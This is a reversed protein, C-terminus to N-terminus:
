AAPRLARHLTHLAEVVGPALLYDRQVYGLEVRRPQFFMGRPKPEVLAHGFEAFLQQHLASLPASKENLQATAMHAALAARLVPPALADARRLYKASMAAAEAREPPQGSRAREIGNLARIVEADAATPSVNVPPLALGPPDPWDLFTAAFHAFLDRRQAMVQDYAVVSLAADGFVSTYTRLGVGFNMLFSGAPQATRQYLYEPLTQTSGGKIEQKWHSALRDAWNRAYFVIRVPNDPGILTRLYDVSPLPLTTLGEVSILVTKHGAGRLEAFQRELQASPPNRLLEMLMHHASRGWFSPYHVGRGALLPRTQVFAEQLYSTGTKHPGVHIIFQTMATPPGAAHQADPPNSPVTRNPVDHQLLIDHALSIRAKWL